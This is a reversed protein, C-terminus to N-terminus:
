FDLDSGKGYGQLQNKHLNFMFTHQNTRKECAIHGQPSCFLKDGESIRLNQLSLSLFCSMVESPPHESAKLFDNDSNM